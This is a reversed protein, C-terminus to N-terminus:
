NQNCKSVDINENEKSHVKAASFHGVKRRGGHLDVADLHLVHVDTIVALAGTLRVVGNVARRRGSM